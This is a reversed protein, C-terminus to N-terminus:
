APAKIPHLLEEEDSLVRNFHSVLAGVNHTSCDPIVGTKRLHTAFRGRKLQHGNKETTSIWVNWLTEYLPMQWVPQTRHAAAIGARNKESLPKGKRAASLAILNKESLPKGKRAASMAASQKAKVDPRCHAASIAARHEISLPIGTKAESMKARAERVMLAIDPLTNVSIMRAKTGFCMNVTGNWDKVNDSFRALWFHALFHNGGNLRVMNWAFKKEFDEYEPWAQDHKPLRHHKETYKDTDSTAIIKMYEDLAAKDGNPYRELLTAKIQELNM